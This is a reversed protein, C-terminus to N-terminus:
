GNEIIIQVEGGKDTLLGAHIASQCIFSDDSYV